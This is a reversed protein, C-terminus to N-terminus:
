ADSKAIYTKSKDLDELVTDLVTIFFQNNLEGSKPTVSLLYTEHGSTQPVKMEEISFNENLKDVVPKLDIDTYNNLTIWNENGDNMYDIYFDAGNVDMIVVTVGYVKGRTYKYMVTDDDMLDYHANLYEYMGEFDLLNIDDETKISDGTGREQMDDWVSEKIFTKFDPIM